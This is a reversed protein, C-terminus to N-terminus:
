ICGFWPHSHEDDNIYWPHYFWEEVTVLGKITLSIDIHYCHMINPIINWYVFNFKLAVLAFLFSQFM